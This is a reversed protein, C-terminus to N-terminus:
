TTSYIGLFTLWLTSRHPLAHHEYSLIVLKPLKQKSFPLREPLREMAGLPLPLNVNNGM